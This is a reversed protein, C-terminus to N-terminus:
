FDFCLCKKGLFMAKLPYFELICSIWDISFRNSYDKFFLFILFFIKNFISIDKKEDEQKDPFIHGIKFPGINLLFLLCQVESEPTSEGTQSDLSNDIVKNKIGKM